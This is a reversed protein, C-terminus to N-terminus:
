KKLDNNVMNLDQEDESDENHEEVTKIIVNNNMEIDPIIINDIQLQKEKLEKIKTRNALNNESEEYLTKYRESEKKYEEKCENSENLENELLNATQITKMAKLQLGTDQSRAILYMYVDHESLQRPSIKEIISPDCVWHEKPIYYPCNLQFITIVPESIVVHNDGDAMDYKHFIRLAAHKVARLDVEM